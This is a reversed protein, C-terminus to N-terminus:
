RKKDRGGPFPFGFHDDYKKPANQPNQGSLSLAQARRREEEVTM